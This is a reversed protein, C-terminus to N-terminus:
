RRRVRTTATGGLSSTVKITGCFTSTYTVFEWQTKLASWTMPYSVGCYDATLQAKTTQSNVANVTLKGSRRADWQARTITIEDGTTPPHIITGHCATCLIENGNRGDLIITDYAPNGHCSICTIATGNTNTRGMHETAVNDVHCAACEPAPLVTLDHGTLHDSTGHCSFCDQYIGNMGATIIAINGDHHCGQCTLRRNDVHETVVNANHCDICPYASDQPLGAFDHETAHSGSGAHCDSCYVDIGTDGRGADITERVAQNVSGHCTACTLQRKDVHEVVVDSSHCDICNGSNILAHNHATGHDHSGHCDSCLIMTGQKGQSIATSIAPAVSSGHCTLCTRGRNTVHETAADEDHCSLCSSEPAGTSDHATSHDVFLFHCETCLVPQGSIGKDIIAQFTGNHCFLCTFPPTRGPRKDIHEVAVNEAHCDTCEPAPVFTQDHAATHDSGTVHCDACSVINGAVGSKIANLVNQDSSSHCDVCGVLRIGVHEIEADPNHCDLCNESVPLRIQAHAPDHAQHCASCDVPARALIVAQVDPRPSAHCTACAGIGNAATNHITEISAPSDLGTHCARCGPAESIQHVPAFDHGQPHCSTCTLPAKARIVAIVEPRTSLHCTMCNNRHLSNIANQDVSSHCTSCSESGKMNRHSDLTWPAHCNLCSGPDEVHFVAHVQTNTNVAVHQGQHCTVCTQPGGNSGRGGAIANIVTQDPSAHCTFCGMTSYPTIVQHVTNVYTFSFGSNALTHCVVCSAPINLNNHDAELSSDHPRHCTSCTGPARAKIAAIVDPRSSAHCTACAGKGNTPVDHIAELSAKTGNLATHCTKCGTSESIKHNEISHGADGHCTVCSVKTGGIGSKIAALVEARESLHCFTCSERHLTNIANQSESAHCGSCTAVTTMDTHTDNNSLHCNACNSGTNVLINNHILHPKTIAVHSATHCDVCGVQSGSAGKARAITNIVDPRTSNHCTQCRKLQTGGLVALPPHYTVMYSFNTGTVRNTHCIACTGTAVLNNHDAAGHPTHCGACDVAVRAKIAAVVEPRGSNHCTACSGAGNTDVTHLTEISALSGSLKTHCSACGADNNTISHIQDFVHGGSHCSECNMPKRSTIVSLVEPRSSLHCKICDKKHIANIADQNNSIHCGSCNPSTTMNWHSDLTRSAHCIFCSTGYDIRFAGHINSPPDIVPIHQNSHCHLCTVPTGNVGKGTSIVALIAPDPSGHCTSCSSKGATITHIDNVYRFSFGKTAIGHCVACNEPVGLNNHDTEGSGEHGTHCAACTVAARATIADKVNQRQSNHCTACSGAGNTAVNHLTEIAALTGNLATHCSVCGSDTISHIQDFVHTEHCSSCEVMSNNIGRAIASVADVRGSSHCTACPGTGNTAVNHLSAIDTMTGLPNATDGGNHCAACGGTAVLMNHDLDTNLPVHRNGDGNRSHCTSCPIPVPSPGNGSFIAAEVNPRMDTNHCKGCNFGHTYTIVNMSSAVPGHCDACGNTQPWSLDFNHDTGLRHTEAEIHCFSTCHVQIGKKGNAISDIVSQRTSKHCTACPGAGNTAVNHVMSIDDFEALPASSDYQSPPLHCFVGACGSTISLFDHQAPPDHPIHCTSCTVAARAAIAAIVNPRNSNHCTACSGAGNTTVNHLADITGVTGDLTEHCSACGEDSISHIQDFIHAQHCAACTVASRALIASKVEARPSAHCTACSGAGNTTVAHLTEITATTGDLIKHCSACGADTISHIQDFVHAEHCSSCSVATRNDIFARVDARSSAHCTACSGSGNTATNHVAEIGALTTDLVTHCSGCGATESISHIDKFVHGGAHCDACTVSGNPDPNAMLATIIASVRPSGHCSTCAKHTLRPIDTTDHCAACAPVGKIRHPAAGHKALLSGHCDSCDPDPDSYIVPSYAPNEHCTTCEYPKEVTHLTLINPNHCAACTIATISIHQATHPALHCSACSSIKDKHCYFCDSPNTGFIKTSITTHHELSPKAVIAGHCTQCNRAQGTATIASHAFGSQLMALLFIILPIAFLRSQAEGKRM